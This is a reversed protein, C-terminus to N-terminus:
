SARVADAGVAIEISSALDTAKEIRFEHELHTLNGVKFLDDHRPDSSMLPALDAFNIQFGPDANKRELALRWIRNGEEETYAVIYGVRYGGDDRFLWPSISGLDSDFEVALRSLELLALSAPDASRVVEYARQRVATGLIWFRGSILAEPLPEETMNSGSWYREAADAAVLADFSDIWNMDYVERRVGENAPAIAVLNEKSFKGRGQNGRLAANLTPFCYISKLRSLRGAHRAARVGELYGERRLTASLGRKVVDLMLWSLNGPNATSQDPSALLGRYAMWAVVPNSVDLYVFGYDDDRVENDHAM